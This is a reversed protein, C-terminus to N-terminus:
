RVLWCFASIMLYSFSSVEPMEGDRTRDEFSLERVDCLLSFGDGHNEQLEWCVSVMLM